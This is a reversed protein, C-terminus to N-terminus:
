YISYFISTNSKTCLDPKAYLQATTLNLEALTPFGPLPIFEPYVRETAPLASAAAGLALSLILTTRAM